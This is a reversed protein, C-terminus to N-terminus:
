LEHMFYKQFDFNGHSMDKYYFDRSTLIHLFERKKKKKNVVDINRQFVM